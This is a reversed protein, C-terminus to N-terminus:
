LPGNKDAIAGFVVRRLRAIMQLFFKIKPAFAHLGRFFEDFIACRPESRQRRKLPCVNKRFRNGCRSRCLHAPWCRAPLPWAYRDLPALFSQCGDMATVHEPRAVRRRSFSV